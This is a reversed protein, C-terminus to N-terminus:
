LLAAVHAREFARASGQRQQGRCDPEALNRIGYVPRPRPALARHFPQLLAPQGASSISPDRGGPAPDAAIKASTATITTLLLNLAPHRRKLEHMLPLISNTEGVSAAHFWFLRGEPRPVSAIGLREPLREPVEKGRAARKRLITMAAPRALATAGRYVSLLVGSKHQKAAKPATKRYDSGALEYARATAANM